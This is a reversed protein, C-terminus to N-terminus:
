GRVDLTKVMAEFPMIEHNSELPVMYAKLKARDKSAINDIVPLCLMEDPRPFVLSVPAPMTPMSM